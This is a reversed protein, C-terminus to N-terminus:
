NQLAGSDIWKRIQTLECDSLKNGNQPMAVYGPLHNVAGWLKGNLAAIKINSYTDLLVGGGAGTGSHCGQCKNQIILSVAGSYTYVNSDCMNQCVLNQAGQLIWNYIINKQEESLPADPPPPMRDDSNTTSIVKYLKSEGPNGSRIEGTKMVSAYSTLVVGEKHTVDDHCGSKACNSLLIPLVQQEFYIKNPDCPDSNGGVPDQHINNNSLIEHKCSSIFIWTLFLPSLLIAIKRM